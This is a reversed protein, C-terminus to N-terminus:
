YGYIRYNQDDFEPILQRTSDLDVEVITHRRKIIATDCNIAQNGYLQFKSLDLRGKISELRIYEEIRSSYVDYKKETSLSQAIQQTSNATAFTTNFSTLYHVLCGLFIFAGMFPLRSTLATSKILSFLYSVAFGLPIILYNFTRSFPVVSHLALFIAPLITVMLFLMAMEKRKSTLGFVIAATFVIYPIGFPIDWGTIDNWMNIHFSPLKQLVLLRDLPATFKNKTIAELGSITIIPTYFTVCATITFVSGIFIPMIKRTNCFFILALLLAFAYLYSPMVCIGLLSSLHLLLFDSSKERRHVINLVVHLGVAFCLFVLSYGRCLHGYLLTMHAGYIVALGITASQKSTYKRLSYYCVCMALTSFIISPIRVKFAINELPILDFPLTIISFLVHNNPAPYTSWTALIGQHTFRNYTWVEDFVFPTFWAAWISACFFVLLNIVFVPNRCVLYSNQLTQRGEAVLTQTAVLVKKSNHFAVHVIIMWVFVLFLVYTYDAKNILASLNQSYYKLTGVGKLVDIIGEYGCSLTTWFFLHLAFLLAFLFIKVLRASM